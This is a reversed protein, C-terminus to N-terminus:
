RAMAAAAAEVESRHPVADPALAVTETIPAVKTPVNVAAGKSLM